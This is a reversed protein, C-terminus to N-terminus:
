KAYSAFLSIFEDFSRVELIAKLQKEESIIETIFDFIDKFLLRDDEHIALMFVINVRSTNWSISAPHISVAITSKKSCMELPHPMAINTYASSSLAEREFLKRRFDGDVYGAKELDKSFANIVDAENTYPGDIQFFEEKFLIKLKSEIKKRNRQRLTEEIANSIHAIDKNTFYGSVILFPKEPFVSLPVTSILLDYDSFAEIEKQDKIMGSVLISDGFIATCRSVLDSHNLFYQPCLFLVKIKTKMAKKEEILVGIHLAVYAIEDESLIHGTKQTVINSIFVSVDYIFPYTNKIQIMQPNRLIIKNELRILMNRVHLSFRITFDHSKLSLNFVDQTRQQILTVLEVIDKGVADSLHDITLQDINESLVRTMILLALDYTEVKTFAIGFTSRIKSLIEHIIRIINPDMEISNRLEYPESGIEKSLSREMTIAIHLILNLLSFDDLFYHQQDLVSTVIEKVIKLDFHPLYEQILDMSIFNEKSEEYILRSIMKKKNKEPGEIFAQNNKTKFLLDYEALDLKIRTLENNLTVPSIFLANALDDLDYQAEELLLKKLIVKRREDVTQPIFNNKASMLIASLRAKDLIRFGQRSSLILDPHDANINTIYTKISRVSFGLSSSCKFATAWENQSGLFDLLTLEKDKM